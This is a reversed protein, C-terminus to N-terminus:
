ILRCKLASKNIYKMFASKLGRFHGLQKLNDENFVYEM